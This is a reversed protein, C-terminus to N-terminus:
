ASSAAPEMVSGVTMGAVDGSTVATKCANSASPPAGSPKVAVFPSDTV